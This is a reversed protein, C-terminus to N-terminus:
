AGDEDESLLCDQIQDRLSNQDAIVDGNAKRIMSQPLFSYFREMDLPEEPLIQFQCSPCCVSRFMVMESQSYELESNSCPVGSKELPSSCIACLAESSTSEICNFRLLRHRRRFALKDISHVLKNFSFSRLKEATKVITRERSPNEEQLLAVFSSIISNVSPQHVKLPQLTKLNDLQCLMTLEQIVCDHLPCLVPVEWRADVYQVDAPLSYGQGKVTAAIVHCAIRSTCLGLVLKSYGHDVAIKQLSIMRLYQVFDEKGTVDDIADLLDKLRDKGDSGETDISCIDEIPFVHLEKSPNGMSSVIDRVEEVARCAETSSAQSVMKEDIFAVGVQFVALCKEKSADANRQAKSQMENVFELAVRSAPGGSFAVLLKDTPSIMAHSTVALKFKAFLSSRLCPPCLSETQNAKAVGDREQCKCCLKTNAIGTSSPPLSSRQRQTRGGCAGGDGSCPGGGLCAM